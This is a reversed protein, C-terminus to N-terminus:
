EPSHYKEKWRGIIKRIGAALLYIVQYLPVYWFMTATVFIGLGLASFYGEIGYDKEGSSMAPMAWGSDIGFVASGIAFVIWFAYYLLSILFLLRAFTMKKTKM